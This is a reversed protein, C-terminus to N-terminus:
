DVLKDNSIFANYEPLSTEIDLRLIRRIELIAQPTEQVSHWSPIVLESQAGALHASVYPVVGDDSHVLDLKPTYNGIISHYPTVASVPMNSALRVFTDRDSLNNISNPIRVSKGTNYGAENAPNVVLVDNFRKALNVPLSILNSVWRAINNEAFPTGHHPAAVFIARRIQPVPEFRLYPGLKEQARALKEGELPHEELFSQWLDEGSSSIMLRSLVGGMSHGIVVIHNSAVSSGAPDLTKLATGLANRIHYNNYALPANTPYYVQWIQYHQRLAEDGLVENAVNIWAEPSSALGHLMLIIRRDPDFPQMLYIHPDNIGAARGFLTNIAQAAFGSRALWLGYGSTFNAALPVKTNGVQISSQRYPDYGVIEVSSTDLIEDIADGKFLLVTSIAPYSTESFPASGERGITMPKTVAVLEAGLGDRRYMNRLGTFTLSSAPIVDEPVAQDEAFRVNELRTRLQWTGISQLPQIDNNGHKHMRFLLTVVQQTAFNYYDRVQTQRDEFARERPQRSTYFLYAYAYRASQLYADLVAIDNGSASGVKENDLATKLWLESLTSLRREDRLGQSSAIALKCEADRALCSTADLGVVRLNEDSAYSLQGTTLVDGRRQNLYDKVQLSSVKVGACGSLVFTALLLVCAPLFPHCPRQAM